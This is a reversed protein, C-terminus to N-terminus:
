TDYTHWREGYIKKMERNVYDVGFKRVRKRNEEGYSNEGNQLHAIMDELAQKWEDVNEADALCNEDTILDINGRIRSAICPLGSAMAEMLSVNLGERISPLVYFDAANLLEPVDTRQGLFHVRESLHLQEALQQLEDRLVGQGAIFYHFNKDNIEAMARIVVAQNKNRNLEGVSLMMVDTKELGLEERKKEAGAVNPQFKELDIGVGPVYATKKAHLKRTARRYDEQNITILVDTWWSCIWEAPYYLLWNKLPAGSYFHFGHATYLVQVGRYRERRCAIRTCMAAVPTHCHVIDYKETKVLQRITRIAGMNGKAFPTRMCTLSYVRCGWEKYCNPVASGRDNCAIDITHGDDLLEKILSQFFGMTMGVTTIYLIKLRGNERHRAKIMKENQPCGLM